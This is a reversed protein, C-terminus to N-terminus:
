GMVFESEATNIHLRSSSMSGLEAQQQFRWGCSWKITTYERQHPSISVALPCWWWRYFAITLLQRNVPCWTRLGKGHGIVAVHHEVDEGGRGARANFTTSANAAASPPCWVEWHGNEAMADMMMTPEWFLRNSLRVKKLFWRVASRLVTRIGGGHHQPPIRINVANSIPQFAAM